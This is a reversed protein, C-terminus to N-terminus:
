GTDATLTSGGSSSDSREDSNREGARNDRMTRPDLAATPLPEVNVRQRRSVQSQDQQLDVRPRKM